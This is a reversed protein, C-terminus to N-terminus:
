QMLSDIVINNFKKEILSNPDPEEGETVEAPHRQTASNLILVANAFSGICLFVMFIFEKIDGFSRVLM